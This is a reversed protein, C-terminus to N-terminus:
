VLDARPCVYCTASPHAYRVRWRIPGRMLPTFTVSLKQKTPTGITPATWATASDSALAAAAALRAPETTARKGLPSDSFGPYEVELWAEDTNLAVGNTLLHVTLTKAFGVTENFVAGEFTPFAQDRNNANTTGLSPTIKWSFPAAGDSAGQSRYIARETFLTGMYGYISDDRSAAGSSIAQLTKSTQAGGGAYTFPTTNPKCNIFKWGPGPDRLDKIAGSSGLNSFDTNKFTVPQLTQLSGGTFGWGPIATSTDFLQAGECDILAPVGDMSVSSASNGPKLVCRRLEMGGGFFRLMQGYGATGYAFSCETLWMEGANGIDFQGGSGSHVFNLGHIYVYGSGTNRNVWLHTAGTQPITATNRLDAAVPPVSGARNVCYVHDRPNTGGAGAKFNIDILSSTTEAHDHAVFYDDGGGAAAAIAAALTTHANAWSSGDGTGTAGSWIYRQAM